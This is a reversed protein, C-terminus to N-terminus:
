KAGRAQNHLPAAIGYGAVAVLESAASAFDAAFAADGLPCGSSRHGAVITTAKEHRLILAGRATRRALEPELSSAFVQTHVLLGRDNFYLICLANDRLKGRLIREALLPSAVFFKNKHLRTELCSTTM